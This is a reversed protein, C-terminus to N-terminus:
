GLDLATAPAPDISRRRTVKTLPETGFLIADVTLYHTLTIEWM